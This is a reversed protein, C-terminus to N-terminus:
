REFLVGSSVGASVGDPRRLQAFRKRSPQM